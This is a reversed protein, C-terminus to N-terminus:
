ARQGHDLGLLHLRRENRSTRQVAGDTRVHRGQADGRGLGSPTPSPSNRKDTARVVSSLRLEGPYDTLDAKKRVDNANVEITLDSEDAPTGDDDLIAKLRVWGGGNLPSMNADPTGVTLQTSAQSPPSCSGSSLPAAHVRNSSTCPAYAIVLPTYIPTASKPRPYANIPIPQWDPFQESVSPTDTIRTQNSGDADMVYLERNGDRTSAFAIKTGDPSWAPEYDRAPDPPSLRTVGTGDAQAVYIGNDALTCPGCGVWRAM